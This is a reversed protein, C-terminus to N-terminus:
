ETLLEAHVDDIGLSQATDKAIDARDGTLMVTRIDARKLSGIAKLADERVEDV